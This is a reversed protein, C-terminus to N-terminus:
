VVVAEACIWRGIAVQRVCRARRTVGYGAHVGPNAADVVHPDSDDIEVGGDVEVGAGESQGDRVLLHILLLPNTFRHKGNPIGPRPDLKQRRQRAVGWDAAEKIAVSRSDLLHGVRDGVDVGHALVKPRGPDAQEVVFRFHAGGSGQDVEGVGLVGTSHEDFQHLM